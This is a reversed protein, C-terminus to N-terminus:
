GFCSRPRRARSAPLPRGCRRGSSRWVGRRLRNPGLEARRAGVAGLRTARARVGGNGGGALGSESARFRQSAAALQHRLRWASAGGGRRRRSLPGLRRAARRRRSPRPRQARADRDREGDGARSRRRRRDGAQRRFLPRASPSRARSLLSGRHRPGRRAAGRRRRGRLARRNADGAAARGPGVGQSALFAIEPAIEAGREGVSRARERRERSPFQGDSSREPADGAAVAQKFSDVM